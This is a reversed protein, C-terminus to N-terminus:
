VFHEKSPLLCCLNNIYINQKGLDQREKEHKELIDSLVKSHTAQQKEKESKLVQLWINFINENVM